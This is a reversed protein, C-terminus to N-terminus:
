SSIRGIYRQGSIEQTTRKSINMWRHVGELEHLFSLEVEQDEGKFLRHELHEPIESVRKRQWRLWQVHASERIRRYSPYFDKPMRLRRRRQTNKGDNIRTRTRM